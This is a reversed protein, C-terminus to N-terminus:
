ALTDGNVFGTVTGTFTPNADGYTRSAADAVYILTASPTITLATANSAAQAFVYNGHNASLGSGDIAYSAVNSNTTATTTFALTGTTASALTEGNKLGSVAGTFAPNATGYARSAADAVYTLTAPDVTLATGNAKVQTFSYNTAANTLGGTIG